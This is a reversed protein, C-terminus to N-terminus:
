LGPASEKKSPMAKKLSFIPFFSSIFLEFHLDSSNPLVEKELNMM